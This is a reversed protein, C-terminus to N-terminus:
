SGGSRRASTGGVRLWPRRQGQPPAHAHDPYARGFSSPVVDRRAVRPPARLHLPWVPVLPGRSSPQGRLRSLTHGCRCPVSACAPLSHPLAVLRPPYLRHPRLHPAHSLLSSILDFSIL